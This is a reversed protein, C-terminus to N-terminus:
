SKTAEQRRRRWFLGGAAALGAALALGAFSATGGAAAEFGALTVATPAQVTASVPGHLTTAGNLDIDELWYWYTQGAEVAADEYSYSAGQTSGPAQSVVYTLLTRDSGDAQLGRYLNFGVHDLESVTEWAVLVQGDRPETVFSALTVALPFTQDGLLFNSFGPTDGEAYSFSGGDNGTARNTVQEVWSSGGINRFVSLNGQAIGNLESTLAWLRVQAAGNTTPTITFCREAYAPANGATNPCYESAAMDVAKIAVLTNGLNNTTVLRVGRYKVVTSASNRIELFSVTANVVPRTEQLTGGTHNFAGGVTFVHAPNVIVTGGDQNYYGAVALSRGFSISGGYADTIIIGGVAGGFGADVVAVKASTGNFVVNDTALPVADGVWNAGTSWNNDGGGGDWVVGCNKGADTITWSHDAIMSARATEGLCYTSNGGHFPVGNNLAQAEWGILLADYNATSLKSGTFMGNATTLATVDWGGIDQNFPSSAFMNSMDTVNGTDWNDLPQNFANSRLMQGMITVNSTDWDNLPQNFLTAFQFMRFMNIVSSTDWNNVPQNFASASDFMEGMTTVSSTDWGNLNQNFVTANRFMQSMTAVSGTNWNGIAGNFATAGDFMGLMTTVNSTNWSNLNQNFDVAGGFMGSMNLVSSTTWGGIPQNFDAAGFFMQGMTTVSSTNWGTIDGNFTSASRFMQFMTTVSATNWSNLSQNFNIAGSFMSQMNLVSGTNWNGIAGNFAAASQFMSQMTTVDSTDWSNLSQNFSAASNFMNSMNTVSGTNWGGIAGNFATASQFMATMNTVNGTNWSNLSQNFATAGQFMSQMTTVNSTNWSNLSQNLSTANLFMGQLSTVALLNPADSATITLNSCGSFASEMSTWQGTGWQAVTLLKQRDGGGGFRIRPFGAGVGTNDKIRITYTGAAGYSCTYSGTAGTVENSGNNDCDVNYNYVTLNATPITFQTSTSTGANDTKVTIVFDDAPAAAVRSTPALSLILVSVLALALWMFPSRGALRRCRSAFVLPKSLSTPTNM